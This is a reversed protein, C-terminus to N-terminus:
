RRFFFGKGSSCLPCMEPAGGSECSYGCKMCQWKVISDCSYLKGVKLESMIAKLEEEHRGDVEAIKSFVGSLYEMGEAAAQQAFAKDLRENSRHLEGACYILNALTDIDEGDETIRYLVRCHEREQRAITDLKAAVTFYGQERAREAFCNLLAMNRGRNELEKVVNAYTQTQKIDM